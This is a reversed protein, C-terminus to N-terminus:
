QGIRGGDQPMQEEENRHSRKILFYSAGLAIILTVVKRALAILAVLIIAEARIERQEAYIKLTEMLEIGIMVLLFLGLLDILENVDILLLPPSIVDKVERKSSGLTLVFAYSVELIYINKALALGYLPINSQIANFNFARCVAQLKKWRVM